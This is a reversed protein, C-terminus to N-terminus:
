LSPSAAEKLLQVLAISLDNSSQIKVHRMSKGSGELLGTPDNLESGGHFQLNVWQTNPAIACFKRVNKQSIDAYSVVRWGVHLTETAQPAAAVVFERVARGLTAVGSSYSGMFEDIEL